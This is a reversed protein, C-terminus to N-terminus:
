DYKWICTTRMSFDIIAELRGNLIQCSNKLICGELEM